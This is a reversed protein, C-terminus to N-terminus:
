ATARALRKKNRKRKKLGLAKAKNEHSIWLQKVVAVNTPTFGWAKGVQEFPVDHEIVLTRVSKVPAGGLGTCIETLTIIAQDETANEPCARTRRISLVLM